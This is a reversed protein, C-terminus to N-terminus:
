EVPLVLDDDGTQVLGRKLTGRARGVPTAEGEPWTKREKQFSQKPSLGWGM